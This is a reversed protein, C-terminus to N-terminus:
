VSFGVKKNEIEKEKKMRRCNPLEPATAGLVNWGPDDWNMCGM